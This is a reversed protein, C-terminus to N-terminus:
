HDFSPACVATQLLNVAHYIGFVPLGTAKQVAAGYPQLNTCEFIIAGLNPIDKKLAVCVASVEANIEDFDLTQSSRAGKGLIAKSFSHAAEMGRTHLPWDASAGAATLHELSLQGSHATIIGIPRNGIMQRVLPILFLSSTVVPISVADALERQFISLFGCSTVIARVGSQELAKAGDIFAPLLMLANDSAAVIKSTTAGKVRHFRVPFPYTAASAVDGAIREFQTDLVLVGILPQEQPNGGSEM